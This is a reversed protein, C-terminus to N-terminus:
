STISRAHTCLSATLSQQSPDRLPSIKSLCAHIASATSGALVGSELPGLSKAVPELILRSSSPPRSITAPAQLVGFTSM